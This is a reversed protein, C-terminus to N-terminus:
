MMKALLLPRARESLIITFLSVCAHPPGFIEIAHELQLIGDNQLPGALAGFKTM